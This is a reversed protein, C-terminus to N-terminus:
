PPVVPSGSGGTWGQANRMRILSYHLTTQLLANALPVLSPCLRLEIPSNLIAELLNGLPEVRLPYQPTRSVAVGHDGTHLFEADSFIYRYLKTTQLRTVWAKEITIVIPADTTGLWRERDEPTTTPLNWFCVRPCDRPFYYLPSHMADIAWVLPEVEPHALPARPEFVAIDPNESYHYVEQM